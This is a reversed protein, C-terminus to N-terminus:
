AFAQVEVYVNIGIWDIAVVGRHRLGVELGDGVGTELTDADRCLPYGMAGFLRGIGDVLIEERLHVPGNGLTELVSKGDGDVLVIIWIDVHALIVGVQRPVLVEVADLGQPCLDSFM